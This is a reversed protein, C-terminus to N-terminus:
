TLLDVARDVAGAVDDGPPYLLTRGAVIGCTAPHALAMRWREFMADQDGAVDGGLIVVPQSSADLVRHMDDVVPLKLWTAASTSGLASAIGISRIVADPTLINRVQGDFNSSMFPEVMAILGQAALASVAQAASELATATAPDSLDIRLLLKGGDFAAAAIAQPTYATYRDDIGFVSDVLGGRNMSGFVMKNELAGLLLLDEIIDPTGLVGDVGPRELATCIRGLMDSRDQLVNPRGGVGLVGRATHDAAIILLQKRGARRGRRSFPHRDMMAAKIAASDEFRMNVLEGVSIHPM